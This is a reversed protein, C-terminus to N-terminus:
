TDKTEPNAWSGAFGPDVWGEPNAPVGKYWQHTFAIASSVLVVRWPRAKLATWWCEPGTVMAVNRHKLLRVDRLQHRCVCQTM